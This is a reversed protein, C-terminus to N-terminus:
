SVGPIKKLLWNISHWGFIAGHFILALFHDNRLAGVPNIFSFAQIDSWIIYIGNVWEVPPNVGIPFISIVAQILYAPLSLIFATIM